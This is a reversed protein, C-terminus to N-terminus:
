QVTFGGDIIINQGTIWRSADSLLYICAYSIDTTQGLGLPFGSIRKKYEEETLTSIYEEMMPTLITGPSVCNVNIGKPALEVALERVSSVLAGKSATYALTGVRAIVSTISSIFVVKFGPIYNKKKTLIKLTVMGGIFNTTFIDIFDEPKLNKLLQTKEIGASHIFGNFPGVENIIPEINTKLEKSDSIDVTIIKHNGSKLSNFTEKLREENRGLIIVNAGMKSCDIACQRGIGSSAGTILIKKGELTFPNYEINM